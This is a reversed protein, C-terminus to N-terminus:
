KMALTTLVTAPTTTIVFNMTDPTATTAADATELLPRPEVDEIMQTADKWDQLEFPRYRRRTEPHNTRDPRSIM